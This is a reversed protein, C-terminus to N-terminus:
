QIDYTSFGKLSFKNLMDFLMNIAKQGPYTKRVPFHQDYRRKILYTSTNSHVKRKYPGEMAYAQNFKKCHITYLLFLHFYHM